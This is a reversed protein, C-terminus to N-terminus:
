NRNAAAGGRANTQVHERIFDDSINDNAHHEDAHTRGKRILDENDDGELVVGRPCEVMRM